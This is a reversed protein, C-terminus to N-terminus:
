RFDEIRSIDSNAPDFRVTLLYRLDRSLSFPGTGIPSIPEPYDFLRRTRGSALDLFFIAEETPSEAKTGLYYIGNPAVAWCSTCYPVLGRIVRSPEGSGPNARWLSTDAPERVFYLSRGDPSVGLSLGRTNVATEAAGGGAPFRLIATDTAAYIWKGDPSFVPHVGSAGFPHVKWEGPRDESALFLERSVANNFVLTRGDPSWRVVSPRLDGHTVQVPNEGMSGAVWIQEEGSRDSRFAIRAGDPSYQPSADQASSAIIRRWRDAPPTAPSLDLRWINPDSPLVSYVLSRTRLALSFQIPFMAYVATAVPGQGAATKWIRFEGGRNSAFVLERGNPLWGQATIQRRDNTIQRPAGGSVPIRFLDQNARHFARVFSVSQGDPSFHPDVDGISLEPPQTLRTRTGDQANILFIALPESPSPADDIALTKGDPSWDLHRSVLGYRTPLVSCVIREPSGDVPLIILEGTSAGLRLCAISLGDPSWAPSSYAAPKPTLLHPNSEGTRLTYIRPSQAADSEWLFAVTSGDPSLEPQYERGALRTVPVVHGLPPLSPTNRRLLFAVGALLALLGIVLIPIQLPRHPAPHGESEELVVPGLIRYGRGPFTEIFGPEGKEVELARRIVAINQALNAEDVVRDPWVSKLLEEKTVVDPSQDLLILLTEAAKRVLHVPQGDKLLVKANADLGFRGFSYIRKNRM